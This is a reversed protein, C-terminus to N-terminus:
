RPTNDLIIDTRSSLIESLDARNSRLIYKNKRDFRVSIKKTFISNPTLLDDIIFTAKYKKVIDSINVLGTGSGGTEGRTTISKIGINKLVESAFPDGSDFVNIVYISDVLELTILIKRVECQSASIISNDILEALLTNLDNEAVVNQAMYKISAHVTLDITVHAEAARKALYILLTDISSLGTRPLQKVEADINELINKRGSSQNKLNMLINQSITELEDADKEKYNKLFDTVALEMAPILKNDKHVLNGFAINQQKLLEIYEDKENITNHLEILEADRKNNLYTITLRKKWWTLIFVVCIVVIMFPIIYFYSPGDNNLLIAISFLVLLSITTGINDANRDTLFPMGKRLRKTRFLLILLILEIFVAAFLPIIVISTDAFEYGLIYFIITSILLSIIIGANSIGSAIIGTILTIRFETKTRLTVIVIFPIIM